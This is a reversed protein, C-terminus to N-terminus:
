RNGVTPLRMVLDTGERDSTAEVGGGCAEFVAKGIALRLGLGWAAPAEPTAGREFPDFMAGAHVIQGDHHVGISIQGTGGDRTWVRIVSAAPAADIASSVASGIAGELRDPDILATCPTAGLERKVEIKKADAEDLCADIARVVIQTVEASRKELEFDGNVIRAVDLVDDILRAELKVKARIVGLSRRIEEPISERRELAASALLAPTLPTRLEHSLAALFRDRSKTAHEAAKTAQVAANTARQLEANAGRLEREARVRSTMDRAVMVWTLGGLWPAAVCRMEVDLPEARKTVLRWTSRDRAAEDALFRTVDGPELFLVDIRLGQVEDADYGYSALAAQNAALIVRTKPDFIWMPEPNREFLLRYKQESRRIAEAMRNVYRDSRRSTGVVTSEIISAMVFVALAIREPLEQVALSGIPTLFFFAVACSSAIAVIIGPGTGGFWAAVLVALPFALLGIARLGMGNSVTLAVSTAFAAMSLALTYKHWQVHPVQSASM